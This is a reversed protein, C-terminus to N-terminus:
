QPYQVYSKIRQLALNPDRGWCGLESTIQISAFVAATGAGVRTLKFVGRGLTALASMRSYYWIQITRFLIFKNPFSLFRTIKCM